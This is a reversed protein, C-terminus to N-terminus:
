ANSMKALQKPSILGRKAARRVHKPLKKVSKGHSAAVFEKGVKAPIGITSNGEAASHMAANQAKSVVPMEKEAKDRFEIETNNSQVSSGAM